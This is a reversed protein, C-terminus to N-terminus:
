AAKPNLKLLTLRLTSVSSVTTGTAEALATVPGDTDMLRLRNFGSSSPTTRRSVMAPHQPPDVNAQTFQLCAVWAGDGLGTVEPYTAEGAAHASGNVPDGFPATPDLNRYVGALLRAAGTWAGSVMTPSDARRWAYVLRADVGALTEVIDQLVNWGVPVPMTDPGRAAILVIDDELMDVPLDVTAQLTAAAAAVFMPAAPAPGPAAGAFAAAVTVTRAGLAEDPMVTVTAVGDAGITFPEPMDEDDITIDLPFDAVFFPRLDIPTVAGRYLDFAFAGAAPTIEAAVVTFSKGDSRESWLGVPDTRYRLYYPGAVGVGVTCSEQPCFTVFSGNNPVMPRWDAETPSAVTTWQLDAPNGSALVVKGRATTPSEMQADITWDAIGLAPPAEAPDGADAVISILIEVSAEGGDNRAHLSVPASQLYTRDVTLAGTIPDLEVFPQSLDVPDDEPDEPIDDGDEPQFEVIFYSLGNGDFFGSVSIVAVEGEAQTLSIPDPEQVVVPAAHVVPVASATFSVSQEGDTATIVVSPVKGHDGLLVAYEPDTEDAVNVGNMRWQFALTADSPYVNVAVSLTDGVRSLGAVLPDAIFTLALPAVPASRFTRSAFGPRSAIWLGTFQRGMDGAVFTYAGNGFDHAVDGWAQGPIRRQLTFAVETEADSPAFVPAVLTITDGITPEAISVLAGPTEVTILPVVTDSGVARILNPVDAFTQDSAVPAGVEALAAYIDAKIAVLQTLKAVVGAASM